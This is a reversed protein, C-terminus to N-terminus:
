TNTGVIYGFRDANFDTVTWGTGTTPSTDLPVHHYDYNDNLYIDVKGSVSNTITNTGTTGEVLRIVRAGEEDKRAYVSYQVGKITGTFASIDEWDYLEMSGTATSYVYSNDDDPNIDNVDTFHTTATGTTTGTWQTVNDGNPRIVSIKVDGMFSDNVGGNGDCIYIDDLVGSFQPSFLHVNAEAAGTAIDTVVVGCSRAGVVLSETNVRMTASATITATGSLALDLEIFHYGSWDFAPTTGILGTPTSLSLSSDLNKVISVLSQLSGSATLAQVSYVTNANSAQGIGKAAFGIIWRNQFDLTKFINANGGIGNGHRGPVISAGSNSTWKQTVNATVYHDFSDCFRLAM